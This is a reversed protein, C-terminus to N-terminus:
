KAGGEFWTKVAQTQQITGPEEPPSGTSGVRQGYIQLLYRGSVVACSERRTTAAASSLSDKGQFCRAERGLDAALPQWDLAASDGELVGNPAAALTEQAVGADAFEYVTVSGDDPCEATAFSTPLKDQQKLIAVAQERTAEDLNPDSKLRQFYRRQKAYGAAATAEDTVAFQKCPAARDAVPPTRGRLVNISAIAETPSSTTAQGGGPSTGAPTSTRDATPQARPGSSSSTTARSDSTADPDERSTSTGCGALVLTLLAGLTTVFRRPQPRTRRGAKREVAGIRKVTPIRNRRHM